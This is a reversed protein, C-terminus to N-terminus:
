QFILGINFKLTDSYLVKGRSIHNAKVPKQFEMRQISKRLIWATELQTSWVVVIVMRELYLEM